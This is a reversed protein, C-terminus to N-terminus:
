SLASQICSRHFHVLKWGFKASPDKSWVRTEEFSASKPGDSLYQLVRIYTMIATDGLVRVEPSNIITKMKSADPKRHDFFFKHFDLGKVLVGAAEPEFCSISPDVISAYTDWDGSNIAEILLENIAEIETASSDDSDQNEVVTADKKLKRKANFKRLEEITSQRHVTGAVVEPRAIWPHKLLEKVTPRKKPNPELMIKILEKAEATVTDWEPSPFDYKANKIQAYLKQHDEEWFPPYGVLLIYLIVGSAWVDVAADYPVRRIVEPSLYGPTGAFGFYTPGQEMIVALGFDTVKIPANPERSALLLNEPKLDRHIIRKEHCHNLATLVQYMCESADKENYFKRTVIEDFLEGGSVYEFVIYFHSEDRFAQRMTVIHEHQLMECIAIERKIKNVESSRLNRLAIVKVACVEGTRKNVCRHVTSFAGKGIITRKDNLDVDYADFLRETQMAM